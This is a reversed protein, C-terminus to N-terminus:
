PPPPGDGILTQIAPLAQTDAEWGQMLLWCRERLLQEKAHATVLTGIAKLRARHADGQDYDCSATVLAGIKDRLAFNASELEAPEARARAHVDSGVIVVAALARSAQEASPLASTENQLSAALELFRALEDREYRYMLPQRLAVLQLMAIVLRAQEQALKNDTDVAPLVVDTLAKIVTALQFAPRLEM